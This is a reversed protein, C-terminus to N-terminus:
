PIVVTAGTTTHVPPATAPPVTVTPLTPLPALPALPTISAGGTSGSGGQGGAAPGPGPAGAATGPAPSGPATNTTSTALGAIAAEDAALVQRLHDLAVVDAGLQAQDQGSATTVSPAPATVTATSAAIPAQGFVWVGIVSSGLLAGSGVVLPPVIRRRARGRALVKRAASRAGVLRAHGDVLADPLPAVAGAAGDRGPPADDHGDHGDYGDHGAHGDHGHRRSPHDTM